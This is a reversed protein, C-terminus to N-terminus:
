LELEAVFVFHWRCCGNSLVKANVEVEMCLCESVLARKGFRWSWLTCDSSSPRRSGEKELMRRLADGRHEQLLKRETQLMRTVHKSTFRRTFQLFVRTSVSLVNEQTSYLVMPCTPIKSPSLVGEGLM